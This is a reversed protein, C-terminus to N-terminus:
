KLRGRVDSIVDTVGHALAVALDFCAMALEREKPRTTLDSNQVLESLIARCEDIRDGLDEASPEGRQATRRLRDFPDSM